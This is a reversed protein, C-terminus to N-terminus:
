DRCIGDIWSFLEPLDYDGAHPLGWPLHYDVQIGQERLAAALLASVALSTDRDSAGHRIRFYPATDCTKDGIYNMPNMRRIQGEEAMTVGAKSHELSFRTFHRSATTKNGFLENEPTTLAVEDFAPTTKMRTRYAVYQEFDVDVAKGKRVTIWPFGSFDTGEEMAKQISEMVRAKVYEKFSGNGDEELKLCNGKEDKLHLGNVYAPFLIKLEDSMKRQEASQIGMLPVMKREGTKEDRIGHMRQYNDYGNFEWEYAMDGHELNTIPCYCSAAFIDDEACAAGAEELFSEYDPHNGTVGLLASLAGGASTGNSIIHSMSGCIRDRNYKLYRVAAKLDVICAPACGIFSGDEGTLGRGRAGVSVAVYGHLLARFLTNARGLHNNGPKEPKGPMYGGVTNALFVPATNRDYAGISGGEWYAEPVYINMKQYEPASPSKVYVLDEYARYVLRKGEEEATEVRYRDPNFELDYEM